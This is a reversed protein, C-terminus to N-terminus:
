LKGRVVKTAVWPTMGLRRRRKFGQSEFMSLTHHNTHDSAGRLIGIDPYALSNPMFPPDDVIAHEL